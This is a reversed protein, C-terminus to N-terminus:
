SLSAVVRYVSSRAINFRRAVASPKDGADLAAKIANADIKAPRGLYRGEAKARAIGEAQRERRLDNEFEAISGLVNFTLRGTPTTTDLNQETVILDVGKAQLEGTIAHLDTVSRALRDLRTVMLVDGARAWEIAETLKARGQRSTGSAKDVFVKEAGKAKLVEVQTTENQGTSSVRAYGVIM